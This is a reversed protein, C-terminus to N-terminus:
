EDDIPEKYLSVYNGDGKDVWKTVRYTEGTLQSHMVMEGTEIEHPCFGQEHEEIPAKCKECQEFLSSM